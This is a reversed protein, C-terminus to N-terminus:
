LWTSGHWRNLWLDYVRSGSAGVIFPYPRDQGSAADRVSRAGAVEGRFAFSGPNGRNDWLWTSGNWWNLWLNNDRGWVFVYPRQPNTLGDQITIAGVPTTLPVGPTGRNIVQWATGDYWNIWLNGGGDLVFVYPRRYAGPTDQVTVAGVGVAGARGGATPGIRTWYWAPM